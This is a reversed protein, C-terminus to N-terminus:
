SSRTSELSFFSVANQTTQRAIEDISIAKILALREAIGPLFGPENRQGRHPLPALYPCDTELLIKDLPFAAVTTRLEEAAKFTLIGGVGLHCGLPALAEAFHRSGTFCHIDIGRLRAAWQQLVQLTDAEAERTHIVVPLDLQRALDLQAEFARLQISKESHMYHYDLGIEGVACVKGETRAWHMLDQAIEDNFDGAEHPHIGVTAFVTPMEKALQVAAANSRKGESAGIAIQRGVGAAFAREFVADLDDAFAATALHTHTDIFELM